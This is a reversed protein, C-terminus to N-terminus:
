KLLDAPVKSERKRFSTVTESHSAVKYMLMYAGIDYTGSMKALWDRYDRAPAKPDSRYAAKEEQSMTSLLLEKLTVTNEIWEILGLRFILIFLKHVFGLSSKEESPFFNQLIM